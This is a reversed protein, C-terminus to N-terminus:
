VTVFLEIFSPIVKSVIGLAASANISSDSAVTSSITWICVNNENLLMWAVELWIKIFIMEINAANTKFNCNENM